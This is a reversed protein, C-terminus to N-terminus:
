FKEDGEEKQEEELFRKNKIGLSHSLLSHILLLLLLLLPSFVTQTSAQERSNVTYSFVAKNRGQICILLTKANLDKFLIMSVLSYYKHM